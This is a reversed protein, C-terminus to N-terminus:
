YNGVKLGQGPDASGSGSLRSQFLPGSGPNQLDPLSDGIKLSLM